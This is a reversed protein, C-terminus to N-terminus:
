AFPSTASPHFNFEAPNTMQEIDIEIGRAWTFRNCKAILRIQRQEDSSFQSDATVGFVQVQGGGPAVRVRAKIGAAKIRSRIHAAQATTTM